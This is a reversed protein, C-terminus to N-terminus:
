LRAAIQKLTARMRRLQEPTAPGLAGRAAAPIHAAPDGGTKFVYHDFVHRWAERQDDPLERLAFFAYMLADYPNGLDKRAPNWWYNVFLNVPELSDVAHWWHYPIYVADGPGLVATEAAALADAFRPFRDLDPAQLDVLSVPTGAPTLELPGPYLNAIQGPPFLTFRRRGAVVVGVNEMLDVHAAVRAANGM